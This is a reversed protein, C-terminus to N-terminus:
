VDWDMDFGEITNEVKSVIKKIAILAEECSDKRGTISVKEQKKDIQIRVDYEKCLDNMVKGRHGEIAFLYNKKVPHILTTPHVLDMIDNKASTVNEATGRLLVENGGM